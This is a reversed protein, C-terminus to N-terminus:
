GEANGNEKRKKEKKGEKWGDGEKWDREKNHEIKTVAMGGNTKRNAKRKTEEHNEQVKTEFDKEKM